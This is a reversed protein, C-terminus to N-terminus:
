GEKEIFKCKAYAKKGEPEKIYIFKDLSYECPIIRSCYFKGKEERIAPCKQYKNRYYRAKTQYKEEKEIIEEVKM